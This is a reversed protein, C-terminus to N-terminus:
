IKLFKCFSSSIWPASVSILQHQVAQTLLHVRQVLSSMGYACGENCIMFSNWSVLLEFGMWDYMPVSSISVQPPRLHAQRGHVRSPWKCWELTQDGGVLPGGAIRSRDPCPKSPTKLVKYNEGANMFIKALDIYSQMQEKRVFTNSVAIDCAGNILAPAVMALTWKHASSLNTRHFQYKGNKIHFMDAEVHFCNLSKAYTSKGSGPLGRILYLKNNM